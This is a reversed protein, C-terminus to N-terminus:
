RSRRLEDLVTEYAQLASAPSHQELFCSRSLADHVTWLPRDEMLRRVTDATSQLDDAPYVVPKGKFLGDPDFFSVTPITRACSQLFTSPFGEAESTDVLDRVGDFHADIESYPVAAVWDLHSLKEAENKLKVYLRTGRAGRAPSGIMLSRVDPLERALGMFLEPQKRGHMAAVWYVNGQDAAGDEQGEYRRRVLATNCGYYEECARLQYEAQAATAHSAQTGYRYFLREHAVVGALHSFDTRSGSDADARRM